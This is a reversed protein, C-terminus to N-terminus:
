GGPQRLPVLPCARGPRDSVTFYVFESAVPELMQPLQAGLRRAEGGERGPLASSSGLAAWIAKSHGWDFPALRCGRCRVAARLLQGSSGCFGLGPVALAPAQGHQEAHLLPLPRVADFQARCLPCNRAGAHDTCHIQAACHMHFIHPCTRRFKSEFFACPLTHLACLCIPCEAAVGESAAIDASIVVGKPKSSNHARARSLREKYLANSAIDGPMM